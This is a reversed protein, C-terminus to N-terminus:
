LCVRKHHSIRRSVLKGSYIACLSFGAASFDGASLDSLPGLDLFSCLLANMWLLKQPAGLIFCHLLLLWCRSPQKFVKFYWAPIQVKCCTGLLKKKKSSCNKNGLHNDRKQTQQYFFVLFFTATAMSSLCIHKFM